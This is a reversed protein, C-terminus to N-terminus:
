INKRVTFILSHRFRDRAEETEGIDVMGNEVFNTVIIKGTATAVISSKDGTAHAYTNYTWSDKVQNLIFDALDLRQGASRAFIDIAITYRNELTTAGVELRNTTQDLLRIAVIPPQIDKAYASLFSKVVNVGTWNADIQTELYQITSLEVNRSESFYQGSM